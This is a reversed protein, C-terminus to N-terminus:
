IHPIYSTWQVTCFALPPLSRLQLFALIILMIRAVIYSITGAVMMFRSIYSLHVMWAKEDERARLLKKVRKSTGEPDVWEAILLIVSFHAGLFLGILVAMSSFRWLMIETQSPFYFSWASFHLAGFLSGVAVMTTVRKSGEEETGSSFRFAGDGIDEYYGDISGGITTHAIWETFLGWRRTAWEALSPNVPSASEESDNTAPTPKWESGDLSIQYKVNLPKYWWLFYLIMSLGAFAIATMELLTIPLHRIARAICQVIFWSIQLISFTKSLADGNSKDEITEASIAVLNKVLNPEHKLAELTVLAGPIHVTESGPTDNPLLQPTLSTTYDPLRQHVPALPSSAQPTYSTTHGNPAQRHIEYKGTYYFGGM